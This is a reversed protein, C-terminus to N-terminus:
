VPIALMRELAIKAWQATETDVSVQNVVRGELLAELVWLLHPGDVRYMTSCLCASPNLSRVEIGQPKMEEAIRNVLHLETGIAWSSGKEANRITKLIKETSGVHDSVEVVERKCEPHVIVQVGPLVKRAMEVHQTGFKVHVSCHGRWLFVKAKM